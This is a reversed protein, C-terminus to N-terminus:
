FGMMKTSHIKQGKLIHLLKLLYHLGIVIVKKAMYLVISIKNTDRQISDFQQTNLSFDKMQKSLHLLYDKNFITAYM